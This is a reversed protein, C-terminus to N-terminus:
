RFDDHSGGISLSRRCETTPAEIERLLLVREIRDVADARRQDTWELQSGFPPLGLEGM